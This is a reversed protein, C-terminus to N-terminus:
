KFYLKPQIYEAESLESSAIEIHSRLICVDNSLSADLKSLEDQIQGLKQAEAQTKMKRYFVAIKLMFIFFFSFLRIVYRLAFAKGLMEKKLRNQEEILKQRKEFEDLNMPEKKEGNQLLDVSLTLSPSEHPSLLVVKQELKDTDKSTSNNDLPVTEM